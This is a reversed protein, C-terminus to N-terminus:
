RCHLARSVRLPARVGARTAGALAPALASRTVLFGHEPRHALRAIPRRGPQTGTFVEINGGTPNASSQGLGGILTAQVVTSADATYGPISVTYDGAGDYTM